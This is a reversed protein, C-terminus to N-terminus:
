TFKFKVEVLVSDIILQGPSNALIFGYDIHVLHGSRQLMINGNHRDKLQLIYSLMSYGALSETFNTVATLYSQSDKPGYFSVFFDALSTFHPFSKKLGDISVCDPITEILGSNPSTIVVSYPRLYLPLSAVKWVRHFFQVLQMALATLAYILLYFCKSVFLSDCCYTIWDNSVHTLPANGKM